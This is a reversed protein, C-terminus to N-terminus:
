GMHVRWGGAGHPCGPRHRDVENSPCRDGARRRQEVSRGGRSRRVACCCRSWGSSSSEPGGPCRLRGLVGRDDSAAQRDHRQVVGSARRLGWRWATDVAHSGGQSMRFSLRCGCPARPLPRCPFASEGALPLRSGSTARLQQLDVPVAPLGARQCRPPMMLLQFLVGHPWDRSLPALGRWAGGVRFMLRPMRLARRACEVSRKAVPEVVRSLVVGVPVLHCAFRRGTLTGSSKAAERAGRGACRQGSVAESWPSHHPGLHVQVM